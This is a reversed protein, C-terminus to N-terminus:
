EVTGPIDEGVRSSLMAPTPHPNQLKLFDSGIYVTNIQLLAKKLFSFFDEAINLTPFQCCSINFSSLFISISDKIEKIKM